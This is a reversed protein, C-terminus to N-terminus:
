ISGVSSRGGISGYFSDPYGSDSLSGETPTPSPVSHSGSPSVSFGSM